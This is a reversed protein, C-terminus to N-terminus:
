HHPINFSSDISLFSDLQTLHSKHMCHVRTTSLSLWALFDKVPEILPQLHWFPCNLSSSPWSIISPPQISLMAEVSRCQFFCSRIWSPFFHCSLYRLRKLAYLHHKSWTSSSYQDVVWPTAIDTCNVNIAALRDIKLCGNSIWGENMLM